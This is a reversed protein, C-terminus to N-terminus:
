CTYALNQAARVRMVSLPFSNLFSSNWFHQMQILFEFGIESDENGVIWHYKLFIGNM